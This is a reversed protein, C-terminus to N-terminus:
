WFLYQGGHREAQPLLPPSEPQWLVVRRRAEEKEREVAQAPWQFDHPQLSPLPLTKEREQQAVSLCRAAPASGTANAEGTTTFASAAARSGLITATVSAILHPPPPVGTASAEGTTAFASAAARSGLITATVSAILHLPPPVGPM